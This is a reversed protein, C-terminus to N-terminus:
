SIDNRPRHGLAIEQQLSSIRMRCIDSRMTLNSHEKWDSAILHIFAIPLATFGEGDPIAYKSLFRNTITKM